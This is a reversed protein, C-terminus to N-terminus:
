KALTSKLANCYATDYELGRRDAVKTVDAYGKRIAKVCAYKSWPAGRDLVWELMELSHEAAAETVGDHWQAGIELLRLICDRQGGRAAFYIARDKPLKDISVLWRIIEGHGAEAAGDFAQLDLLKLQRLRM